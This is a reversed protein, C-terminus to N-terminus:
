GQILTFADNEKASRIAKAQGTNLGYIRKISSVSEDSYPLIPSPRASLIEECLDYYILSSLAAYEREITTMSTIKLGRLSLKPSFASLLASDIRRGWIRYSIEVVDKKRKISHVRALCHKEQRDRIPDKGKSLLVIDGEMINNERNEAIPMTTSVEMFDDVSVRNVIMIEFPKFNSEEKATSFSRWAESILLPLFTDKYASASQFTNSVKLCDGGNPPDEGEHFIDWALIIGHLPEMAPVLRSRMDAKSRIIKTKRVPGRHEIKNLALRRSEEYEQVKKSGDRGRSIIAKLDSNDDSSEEDSSVMIEGRVPEHEKGTVGMGKLGSGEGPVVGRLANAHAIQIADRKKKEEKERQRSEKLSLGPKGVQRSLPIPAPKQAKRARMQDLVSKNRDLTPTLSRYPDETSSSESSADRSTRTPENISGNASRSWADITGQQKKPLAKPTEIIQVGQHEDLARSLESKQQLTLNTKTVNKAVNEIRQLANEDVEMDFEGLRRLIKNVLRVVTMLLYPDKLRLWKSMGDMSRRPQELLNKRSTKSSEDGDLTENQLVTALVQYQDFLAEAYEMADRCFNTMKEKNNVISWQETSGFAINIEHWQSTWWTMIAKQEAPSQSTRTRLIGKQSDCLSELVDGSTKIFYPLAAFTRYNSIRRTSYALSALTLGLSMQLIDSIAEKRENKGTISKFLEVAAEYMEQEPPMLTGFLPYATNERECFRRLDDPDFDSLRELVRSIIETVKGFDENFNVKGRSLAMLVSRNTSDKVHHPKFKELGILPTIGILVNRAMESHDHNLSDLVTHWIPLAENNMGHHVSKESALAQYEAQLFKCHLSLANRIVAMALKAVEKNDEQDSIVNACAVITDKYKGVLALSNSIVIFSTSADITFGGDTFTMLTKLLADLGVQFCALRCEEPVREFLHQLILRCPEYQQAPPLSQVFTSIWALAGPVGVDDVIEYHRPSALLRHFARNNLIQEAVTAPSISGCADWFDLPSKVLLVRMAKIILDLIDESDYQTLHQLALHYIDPQVEMGRLSHTILSKDHKDLMLILGEWFRQVEDIPTNYISVNRIADILSDHVVWEFLQPTLTKDYTTWGNIAFRLRCQDPSFLFRTMAPLADTLKLPKNQQISKFVNDFSVSLKTDSSHFPICCLAEYLAITTTPDGRLSKTSRSGEPINALMGSAKYLGEDIREFDMQSIRAALGEVIEEEFRRNLNDTYTEDVLM